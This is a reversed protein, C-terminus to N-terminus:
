WLKQIGTGNCTYCPILEGDADLEEDDYKEGDCAYCTETRSLELEPLEKGTGNCAGCKVNRGWKNLSDHWGSGSCSVCQPTSTEVASSSHSINLKM